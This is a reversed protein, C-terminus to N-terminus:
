PARAARRPHAIAYNRWFAEFEENNEFIYSNNRLKDLSTIGGINATDGSGSLKDAFQWKQGAFINTIDVMKLTAEQPNWKYIIAIIWHETYDNYSRRKGQLMKENPHLFYGNYTGLTMRSIKNIGKAVRASKIDIAVLKGDILLSIDPYTRGNPACELGIKMKKAWIKLRETTIAQFLETIVRSEKPLPSLTGDAHSIGIIDWKIESAISTLEDHLVIPM